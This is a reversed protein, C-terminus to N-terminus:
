QRNLRLAAILRMCREPTTSRRATRAWAVPRSDCREVSVCRSRALGFGKMRRVVVHLGPARGAAAWHWRGVWGLVRGWTETICSHMAGTPM